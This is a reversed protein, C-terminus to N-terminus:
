HNWSSTPQFVSVGYICGISRGLHVPPLISGRVCGTTIILKTYFTNGCPSNILTNLTYILATCIFHKQVLNKM